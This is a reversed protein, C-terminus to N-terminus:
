NLTIPSEIEGQEHELGPQAGPMGPTRSTSEATFAVQDVGLGLAVALANIQPGYEEVLLAATQRDPATALVTKGEIGAFKTRRIWNEFSEASLKKQLPEKIVDWPSRHDSSVVVVSGRRFGRLKLNSVRAETM